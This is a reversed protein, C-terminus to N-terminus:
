EKSEPKAAGPTPMEALQKLREYRETYEVEIMARLTKSEEPFAKELSAYRVEGGLFQQLTGDPKKSDPVFLNKGDVLINIDEGSAIVHDL